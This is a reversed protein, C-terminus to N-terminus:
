QQSLEGWYYKVLTGRHLCESVWFAINFMILGWKTFVLRLNSCEFLGQRAM